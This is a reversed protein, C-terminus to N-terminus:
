LSHPSKRDLNVSVSNVKLFVIARAMKLPQVVRWIVTFPCPLTVRSIRIGMSMQNFEGMWQVRCSRKVRNISTSAPFDRLEALQRELNCNSKIRTVSFFFIWIPWRSKWFTKKWLKFQNVSTFPGDPNFMGVSLLFQYLSNFSFDLVLAEVM